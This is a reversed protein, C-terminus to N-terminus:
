AYIKMKHNDDYDINDWLEYPIDYKVIFDVTDKIVLQSFPNTIDFEMSMHLMLENHKM